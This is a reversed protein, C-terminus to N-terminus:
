LKFYNGDIVQQYDFPEDKNFRPLEKFVGSTGWFAMGIRIDDEGYTNKLVKLSRFHKAGTNPNVFKHADYSKDNTNYRLPDFLAIVNDADEAPRGSEKAHDLTPEFSDMKQYQVSGLERTIQSVAIPSMGYFDRFKQFAESVADIAEKKTKHERTQKALGLHDAIPLIVENPHNPIYIKKFESIQEEKGNADAYNKVIRYMDAASRGGEYIDLVENELLDIYEKYKLILSRETRTLKEDWWGLMKPVPIIEGSDLFIKRSLWKSVIYSKSREMSFLIVKLKVGGRNEPSIYWDFPNLIYADHLFSSKGSGTAGFILTYIKKRIGIYRNLRKFGMPLGSNKGAIGEDVERMVDDFTSM